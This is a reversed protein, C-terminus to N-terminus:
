YLWELMSALPGGGGDGNGFLLLAEDSFENQSTMRHGNALRNLFPIRPPQERSRSRSKSPQKEKAKNSSTGNKQVRNLNISETRTKGVAVVHLANLPDGKAIFVFDSKRTALLPISHSDQVELKSN